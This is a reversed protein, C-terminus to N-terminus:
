PCLWTASSPQENREFRFHATKRRFSPPTFVATWITSQVRNRSAQDLACNLLLSKSVRSNSTSQTFKDRGHKLATKSVFKAWVKLGREGTASNHGMQDGIQNTQNHLQSHLKCTASDVTDDGRYLVAGFYQVLMRKGLNVLDDDEQYERSLSGSYHCWAHYALMLEVFAVFTPMDSLVCGTYGVGKLKPKKRRHKPVCGRIELSPHTTQTTLPEEHNASANVTRQPMTRPLLLLCVEEM